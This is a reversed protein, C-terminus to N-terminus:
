PTPTLGAMGCAAICLALLPPAEVLPVCALLCWTGVIPGGDAVPLKSVAFIGVALPAIRVLARTIRPGLNWERSVTHNELSGTENLHDSGPKNITSSANPLTAPNVSM